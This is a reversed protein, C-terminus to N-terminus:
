DINLNYSFEKASPDLDSSIKFEAGLELLNGDSNNTLSIDFPMKKKVLEGNVKLLFRRLRMGHPLNVSDISIRYKKEKNVYIKYKGEAHNAQVISLNSGPGISGNPLVKIIRKGNEPVLFKPLALKQLEDVKIKVESNPNASYVSTSIQILVLSIIILTYKISKNM